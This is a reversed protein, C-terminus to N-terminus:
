HPQQYHHGSHNNETCLRWIELTYLYGPCQDRGSKDYELDHRSKHFDLTSRLVCQLVYVRQTHVLVAQHYGSQSYLQQVLNDTLIGSLM